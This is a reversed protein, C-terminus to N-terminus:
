RSAGVPDKDLVAVYIPGERDVPQALRWGTGRVLKELEPESVFLYDFWAGVLRRYRMRLRIQGGMRGRRRNHRHYTLHDPDQTDYPDLTQGVIRAEPATMGHLRRLLWRARRRSGLLGLNNGMFVATDFTGLRRKSVQTV